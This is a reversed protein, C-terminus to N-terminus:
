GDVVLHHLVLLLLRGRPGRDFLVARGLPGRELELSAQRRGGVSEVAQDQTEADLDALDMRELAIGVEAAHWAEVGGETKRFRLRLADHHDLVALLAAEIVDDGLAADTVELLLSQNNHWPAPHDQEFFWRHIPTPALDGEVRGQEARRAEAQAAGGVVAALEAISPYQFLQRPSL